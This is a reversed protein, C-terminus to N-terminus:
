TVNEEGKVVETEDTLEMRGLFVGYPSYRLARSGQKVLNEDVGKIRFAEYEKLESFTM